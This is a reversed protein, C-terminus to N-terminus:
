VGWVAGLVSTPKRCVSMSVESPFSGHLLVGPWPRNDRSESVEMHDPKQQVAAEFLLVANPLDGEELRKRGEEFADPHDRM